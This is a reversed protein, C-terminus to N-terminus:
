GRQGEKFEHWRRLAAILAQEAETQSRRTHTNGKDDYAHALLWTSGANAIERLCGLEAPGIWEGGRVQAHWCFTIPYDAEKRRRGAYLGPESDTDDHTEVWVHACQAPRCDADGQQESLAACFVAKDIHGECYWGDECSEIKPVAFPDIPEPQPPGEFGPLTPVADASQEARNLDM